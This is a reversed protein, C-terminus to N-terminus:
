NASAAFDNISSRRLPRAVVRMTEVRKLQAEQAATLATLITARPIGPGVENGWLAIVASEHGIEDLLRAYTAAREIAAGSYIPEDDENYDSPPILVGQRRWRLCTRPSRNIGRESLIKALAIDDGNPRDSPMPGLNGFAPVVSTSGREPTWRRPPPDVFNPLASQTAHVSPKRTVIAQYGKTSPDPGFDEVGQM